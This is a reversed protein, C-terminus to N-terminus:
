PHSGNHNGDVPAVSPDRATGTRPLAPPIAALELVADAGAAVPSAIRGSEIMVGMPTGHADFAGMAQGDPDILVRSQLDHERTHEPDGSSIVVLRPADPPPHAEFAKLDDLMNQCFGCGPNWFIALTRESYLDNLAIRHGDLDALVLEPAPQGVRSTDPPPVGDAHGSASPVQVVALPAATAQAVLTRIADIGGVTPSRILGDAGIVVAMPTALAQYSDSVERDAQLAVRELGHQEAKARNRGPDGSAVVAVQLRQQLERQWGAVDPLLADCPGCGADSFVLLLPMRSALLSGLGLRDGDTSPLSFEPAPVGVGLGGGELGAGLAPVLEGGALAPEASGGLLTEIAELRAFIRGNQSLLQLSFWALFGVVLVLLVGLGLAAAWGGSLRAVWGTASIGTHDWGAVVVFGAAAALAGTRVLTRWGVPSSHLQGFCHCDTETGRRLAVAIGVVFVLLLLLAGLAGFRASVGPILVVAVVLECVPLGLGVVGALRESVGFGVVARRSGPLDALKAVGAILFVGALLLRLALLAADM